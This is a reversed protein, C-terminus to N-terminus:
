EITITYETGNNTKYSILNGKNDFGQHVEYGRNTKYFILNKNKDFRQWYELGSKSKFHILNNDEDFEQIYSDGGDVSHSILNNREDFEQKCKFGASTIYYILNGKDDYTNYTEYGNETVSYIMRNHLDYKYFVESGWNNNYHVVNGREDYNKNWEIGNSVKYHILNLKEDFERWIKIHPDTREYYIECNNADFKRFEKKTDSIERYIINGKEDKKEIIGLLKKAYEDTFISEIFIKNTSYVFKMKNEVVPALTKIRMLIFGDDLTYYNKVDILRECYYFVKYALNGKSSFTYTKGREYNLHKGGNKHSVKYGFPFEDTNM